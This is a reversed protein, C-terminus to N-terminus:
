LSTASGIEAEVAQDFSSWSLIPDTSSYWWKSDLHADTRCADGIQKVRQFRILDLLDLLDLVYEVIM